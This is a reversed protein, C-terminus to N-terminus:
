DYRAGAAGLARWAQDAGLGREVEDDIRLLDRRGVRQFEAEDVLHGLAVHDLGRDGEGLRPGGFALRRTPGALDLVLDRFVAAMRLDEGFVPLAHRALEAAELRREGRDVRDLRRDVLGEVLG